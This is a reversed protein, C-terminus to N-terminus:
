SNQYRVFAFKFLFTIEKFHKWSFFINLTYYNLLFYKSVFKLNSEIFFIYTYKLIFALGTM